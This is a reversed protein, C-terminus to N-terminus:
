FGQGRFKEDLFVDEMFGFPEQHLDNYMVYLRARAVEQGSDNWTIKVAFSKKETQKKLEM